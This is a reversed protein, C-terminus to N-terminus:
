GTRANNMAAEDGPNTVADWDQPIRTLLEDTLELAQRVIHKAERQQKTDAAALAAAIQAAVQLRPSLSVPGELRGHEPAEAPFTAPAAEGDLLRGCAHWHARLETANLNTCADGHQTVHLDPTLLILRYPRDPAHMDAYPDTEVRLLEPAPDM